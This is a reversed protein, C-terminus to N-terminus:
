KKQPDKLEIHLAHIHTTGVNEEIHTVTESWIVEGPASVNIRLQCILLRVHLWSGGM